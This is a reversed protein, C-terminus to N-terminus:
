VVSLRRSRIEDDQVFDTQLFTLLAARVSLFATIPIQEGKVAVDTSYTSSGVHFIAGFISVAETLLKSNTSDTFTPFVNKPVRVRDSGCLKAWLHGCGSLIIQFFFFFGFFEIRQVKALSSTSKM